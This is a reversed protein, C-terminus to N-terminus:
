PTLTKYKDCAEVLKNATGTEKSSHGADDMLFFEAEPLQKYLDWATKVQCVVDYRGQVITVPIKANRIIYADDILQNPKLFGKNIFYHCEIRAFALAWTDNQINLLNEPNIKLEVTSMEWTAWAKACRLREAEDSGTLRKYYAYVLDNREIKPIPAVFKEFVDPFLYSAGSQHSFHVKEDSVTSIGCLIMARVRDIHKEAYALSLTTGWSGGFLIWRDVELHVRLKEMDAVLYWTDNEELCSAPTSKGAGRQDFLIIHYAEPDFYQRASPTTGGGPGGHVFVIPLGNKNGSQEYYLTHISSVELHGTNFPEISPYMKGKEVLTYQQIHTILRGDIYEKRSSTEASTNSSHTSRASSQLAHANQFLSLYISLVFVFM